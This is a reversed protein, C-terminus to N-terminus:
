HIKALMAAAQAALAKHAGSPDNATVGSMCTSVEAAAAASTKFAAAAEADAQILTLLQLLTELCKLRLQLSTVCCCM